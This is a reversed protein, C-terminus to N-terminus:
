CHVSPLHVTHTTCQTTLGRWEGHPNEPLTEQSGCNKDNYNYSVMVKMAGCRIERVDFGFNRSIIGGVSNHAFGYANSGGRGARATDTQKLALYGPAAAEVERDAADNM